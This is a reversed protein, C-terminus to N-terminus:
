FPCPRASLSNSWDASTIPIIHNQSCEGEDAENDQEWYGVKLFDADKIPKHTFFWSDGDEDVAVYKWKPDIIDWMNEPYDISIKLSVIDYYDGHKCKGNLDWCLTFVQNHSIVYGILPYDYENKTDRLDQIVKAILGNRLVAPHGDLIDELSEELNFKTNRMANEWTDKTVIASDWDEALELGPISSCNGDERRQWIGSDSLTPQSHKGFKVEGDYDQVAYLMGEPFETLEKQLIELLKM